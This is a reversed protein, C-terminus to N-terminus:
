AGATAVEQAAEVMDVPKQLATFTAIPGKEFNALQAKLQDCAKAASRAEASALLTAKRTSDAVEAAEQTAKQAAEISDQLALVGNLKDKVEAEGKRIDAEREQAAPGEAELAATLESIKADFAKGLEELVVVDFTGRQDKPKVISTPLAGLLSDDLKLNGLLPKISAYDPCENADMPAKYHELFTKEMVDKLKKNAEYTKGAKSCWAELSALSDEASKKAASAEALADKQKQEEEAKQALTADVGAQEADKDDKVAKLAAIKQDAEAIQGEIRAKHQQLTDEIMALSETQFQHRETSSGLSAPLIAILLKKCEEPLHAAKNIANIVQTHKPDVRPKKSEEKVATSARKKAPM